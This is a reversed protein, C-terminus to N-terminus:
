FIKRDELYKLNRRILKDLIWDDVHGNALSLGQVCGSQPQFMLDHPLLNHKNQSRNEEPLCKIPKLDSKPCPFITVTFHTALM